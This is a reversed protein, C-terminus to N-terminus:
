SPNLTSSLSKMLRSSTGRSTQTQQWMGVQPVNEYSQMFCYTEIYWFVIHLMSLKCNSVQVYKYAIIYTHGITHCMIKICILVITFLINFNWSCVNNPQSLGHFHRDKVVFQNQHTPNPYWWVSASECEIPGCNSLCYFM